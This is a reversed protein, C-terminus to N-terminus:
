RTLAEVIDDDDADIMECDILQQAEKASLKDINEAWIERILSAISDLDNISDDFNYEDGQNKILDFAIEKADGKQLTDSYFWDGFGNSDVLTNEFENAAIELKHRLDNVLSVWQENDINSEDCAGGVWNNGDWNIDSVNYLHELDSIHANIVEAIQDSKLYPNIYFWIISQNFVETPISNGISGKCDADINGTRLDLEIYADQPQYQGDYQYYLPFRASNDPDFLVTLKKM